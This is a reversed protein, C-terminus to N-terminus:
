EPGHLLKRIDDRLKRTRATDPHRDGLVRARRALLANAQEYAKSLENLELLIAIYSFTLAMAHVEDLREQNRALTAEAEQRAEDIRRQVHLARVLTGRVFLVENLPSTGSPDWQSLIERCMREALPARREEQALIARALSHKVVMSDTHNPDLADEAELIGWLLQEAEQWRGEQVLIAKALKHRSAWTDRDNEGLVRARDAILERLRTEALEAEGIEILMRGHEHRLAMIERDDSSFGYSGCRDILRPLFDNAPSLLGAAIFYRSTSRALGLAKRILDQEHPLTAVVTDTIQVVHPAVLQWLARDESQDPDSKGLADELLRLAFGYYARPRSMVDRDTRLVLHVAPHMSVTQALYEGLRNGQGRVPQLTVLGVDNLRQLIRDIDPTPHGDFLDAHALKEATHVPYPIASPNMCALVKLLPAAQPMGSKALADLSIKFVEYVLELGLEQDLPGCGPVATLRSELDRRYATFTHGTEGSQEFSNKIHRAACWLALPLGGLTRSLLRADERTGASPQGVTKTLIAIGDDEALPNITRIQCWPGWTTENRDHSTVIVRGHETAPTRLWGRGDAVRGIGAALSDANDANDFVILWPRGHNELANWIVDPVNRASTAEVLTSKPIGLRLGLQQMATHLETVNIWWVDRQPRMRHAAELAVRSKGVGGLGALVLVKANSALIAEVDEARGQLDSVERQSWPPEISVQAIGDLSPIPAPPAPAGLPASRGGDSALYQRILRKFLQYSEDSPGRPRIISKHDGPVTERNRFPYTADVNPAVGDTAGGCATIPFPCREELTEIAPVDAQMRRHLWEQPHRILLLRRLGLAIKSGANPCAYMLLHSIRSLDYSAGNRLAKSLFIQAVIGGQSHTVLFVKHGDAVNSRLFSGLNDAIDNFTPIKRSFRTIFFPSSYGFHLLTTKDSLDPDTRITWEFHKWTKPSSFLGHIFVVYIRDKGM